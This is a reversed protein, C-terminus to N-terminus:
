ARGEAKDQILRARLDAPVEAWGSLAQLVADPTTHARPTGGLWVLVYEDEGDEKLDLDVVLGFYTELPPDWGAVIELRRGARSALATLEHRSM